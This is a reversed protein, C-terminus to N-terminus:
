GSKPTMLALAIAGAIVVLFIVNTWLTKSWSQDFLFNFINGEVGLVVLLAVIVAVFIAVVLITKVIKNEVKGDGSIFGWLLLGIFLIIVAITFFLIMDGVILKPQVAAVFILGIVFSILANLQKKDKGLVGTKELVAFLIFFVLLFPLLYDSLLWHQLITEVM